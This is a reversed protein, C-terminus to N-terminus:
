PAVLICDLAHKDLAKTDVVAGLGRGPPIPCHGDKIPIVPDPVIPDIGIEPLGMMFEAGFSHNPTAACHHAAALAELHSGNATGAANIDCEASAAALGIQRGRWLGGSKYLKICLVDAAEAALVRYADEPSFVSEDAMIPVTVQDRVRRMAVHDDRATPQEFYALDLEELERVLTVAEHERLANNADLALRTKGGLSQHVAKLTAVDDAMRGVPGVKFCIYPVAYEDFKTEAEEVMQKLPGLGVSWELPMSEKVAGGLLAHVPLDLAKGLLDHLAMDLISLAGPNGPLMRNCDGLIATRENPDRGLLAPDYFDRLAAVVSAATEGQFPNVPRMQGYGTLGGGHLAMLVSRGVLNDTGYSIPGTSIARKLPPLTDLPMIEVRDITLKEATPM